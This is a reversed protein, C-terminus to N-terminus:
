IHQGSEVGGEARGGEVEGSPVARTPPRRGRLGRGARRVGGLHTGRDEGEIRDGPGATPGRSAEIATAWVSPKSGHVAM